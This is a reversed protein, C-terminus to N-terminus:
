AARQAGRPEVLSGAADTAAVRKQGQDVVAPARDVLRYGVGRCNLVYGPAGASELKRRLRGAHTDLTRTSGEAKYGWVDRLLERKTFVRQPDGALYTLLAWEMRSLEVRQGLCRVERGAYDIALAGVRGTRRGRGPDRRRLVASLRARLELYRVPKRVFDDCGAEFARLLVWDGQEGSLVMVPLAPDIRGARPDGSRTARLLRLAALRDELEGLLLLDPGRAARCRVEAATLAPEAEFGDASLQDILYDRLADDREAVLVTTPESM